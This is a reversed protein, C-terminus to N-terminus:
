DLMDVIVGLGIFILAIILIGLVLAIPVWLPALVLWWSWNIVGTLKLVIFVLALADFFGLGKYVIHTKEEEYYSM